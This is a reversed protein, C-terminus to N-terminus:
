EYLLFNTTTCYISNFLAHIVYKNYIPYIKCNEVIWIKKYPYWIEKNDIHFNKTIENKYYYGNKNKNKVFIQMCNNSKNVTNYLYLSIWFMLNICNIIIIIIIIVFKM